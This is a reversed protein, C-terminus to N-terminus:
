SHGRTDRLYEDDPSRPRGARSSRRSALIAAVIMALSVLPMGSRTAGSASRARWGLWGFLAVPMVFTLNRTIVLGADYAALAISNGAIAASPVFWGLGIGTPAAGLFSALFPM